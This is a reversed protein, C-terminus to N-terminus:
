LRTKLKRFNTKFFITMNPTPKIPPETANAKFFAPLAGNITPTPRV